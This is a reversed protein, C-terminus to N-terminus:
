VCSWNRRRMWPQSCIAQLVCLHNRATHHLASSLTHMHTLPARMHTHKPPPPSLSMCACQGRWSTNTKWQRLTLIAGHLYSCLSSHHYAVCSRCAQCAASWQIVRDGAARLARSQGPVSEGQLTNCLDYLEQQQKENNAARTTAADVELQLREKQHSLAEVQRQLQQKDANLQQEKSAGAARQEELKFRLDSLEEHAKSIQKQLVEIEPLRGQLM